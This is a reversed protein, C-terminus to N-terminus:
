TPWPEPSAFRVVSDTAYLAPGFTRAPNTSMGSLPSEFAIYSAVLIAAFYHTFRALVERNSAFLITSMLLFAVAVEAVFAIDRRLHRTHHCRLAGSQGGARRSASAAARYEECNGHVRAPDRYTSFMNESFRPVSFIAISTVRERHRRDLESDLSECDLAYILAEAGASQVATAIKKLEDEQRAALVVAEFDRALRM